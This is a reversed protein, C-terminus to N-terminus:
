LVLSARFRGGVVIPIAGVSAPRQRAATECSQVHLIPFHSRQRVTNKNGYSNGNKRSLNRRMIAVPLHVYFPQRMREVDKRVTNRNKM